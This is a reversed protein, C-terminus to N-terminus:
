CSLELSLRLCNIKVSQGRSSCCLPAIAMSQRTEFVGVTHDAQYDPRLSVCAWPHSYITNKLSSM